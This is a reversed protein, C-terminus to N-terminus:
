KCMFDKWSSDQSLAGGPAFVAKAAADNKLNADFWAIAYASIKDPTFICTTHVGGKLSAYVAPGTVANYAPKVWMSSLVILDVTGTMFFVPKSLKEAESKYNSGAVSLVCKIRSDAAGANVASRGGQSHGAAAINETNVKGYLDSSSDSNKQLIYDVTDSQATGDATMVSTDAAVIYGAAAISKLLNFYLQTICGTGNAWVIVPYKEDSEAIDGPYFMIKGSGWFNTDKVCVVSSDQQFCYSDAFGASASFAFMPLILAVSLILALVKKKMNVRREAATKVAAFSEAAVDSVAQIFRLRKGKEKPM